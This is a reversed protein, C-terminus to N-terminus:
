PRAPATQSAEWENIEDLPWIPRPVRQFPLAALNSTTIGPPDSRISPGAIGEFGARFHQQSKLGVIRYRTVDIGHLLFVEADFTQTRVSSVLVDVNGIVWLRFSTGGTYEVPTLVWTGTTEDYAGGELYLRLIPAARATGQELLLLGALITLGLLRKM